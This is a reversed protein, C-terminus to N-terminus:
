KRDFELSGCSEAAWGKVTDSHVTGVKQLESGQDVRSKPKNEWSWAGQRLHDQSSAEEGGTRQITWTPVTLEPNQMQKCTRRRVAFFVVQSCPSHGKMKSNGYGAATSQSLTMVWFFIYQTLSCLKPLVPFTPQLM